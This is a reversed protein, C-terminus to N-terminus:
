IGYALSHKTHSFGFTLKTQLVTLYKEFGVLTIWTQSWKFPLLLALNNLLTTWTSEKWNGWLIRIFLLFM